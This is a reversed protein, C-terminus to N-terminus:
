PADPPLEIHRPDDRYAMCRVGLWVSSTFILVGMFGFLWVPQAVAVFVLSYTLVMACVLVASCSIGIALISKRPRDKM